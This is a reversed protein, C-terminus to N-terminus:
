SLSRWIKSGLFFARRRQRVLRGNRHKRERIHGAIDLLFVKGISHGLVDDRRQGTKLLRGPLGSSPLHLAQRRPRGPPRYSRDGHRPRGGLRHHRWVIWGSVSYPAKRAPGAGAADNVILRPDDQDEDLLGKCNLRLNARGLTEFLAFKISSSGANLVLIADSM